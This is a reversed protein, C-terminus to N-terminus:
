LCRCLLRELDMSFVPSGAARGGTICPRYWYSEEKQEFRSGAAAGEEECRERRTQVYRSPEEGVEFQHAGALIQYTRDYREQSRQGRSGKM